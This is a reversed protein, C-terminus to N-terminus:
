IFQHFSQLTDLVKSSQRRSDQAQGTPWQIISSVLVLDGQSVKGRMPLNDQDLLIFEILLTRKSNSQLLTSM